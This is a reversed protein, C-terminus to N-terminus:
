ATVEKEKLSEVTGAGNVMEASVVRSIVRGATLVDLTVPVTELRSVSARELLKDKSEVVTGPKVLTAALEASSVPPAYVTCSGFPVKM